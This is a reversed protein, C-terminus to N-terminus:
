SREVVERMTVALRVEDAARNGLQIREKMIIPVLILAALAGAWWWGGLANLLLRALRQNSTVLEPQRAVSRTVVNAM